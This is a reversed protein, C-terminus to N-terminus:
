RRGSVVRDIGALDRTARVDGYGLATFLAGAEDALGEGVEVALLGTRRLADRAEAALRRVVALADDGPVFVAEAPEHRRVGEEVRPDDRRVYPPNSLVADLRGFDASGRLPTLLDGHHLSLRSAVGHRSANRAAFELAPTSLDTAHARASPVAVLLAVAVCGSGTGVDAFVPETAGELMPLAVEVLHETEPRPVLVGPGVEFPLSYFEKKGVLYAVPVHRGRERVLARVRAREDPDLPRDFALYVELRSLGLAHGLLIEADLRAGEIGQEM